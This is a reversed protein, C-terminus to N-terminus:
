RGGPVGAAGPAAAAAPAASGGSLLSRGDLKATAPVDYLALLTPMIDAMYPKQSLDLKRNAFLIGDVLPPYVSCHDASWVDLNPEVISKAVIGLSDQWGVRYGSANSPFLDPILAPDYTGYAEDRTFVYAVPHEGNQPDVYQPLKARIEATLAEYEAGPNVIGQGERGKLNIYINGLGMAYARTKSWDVDQFFQGQDFLDELNAQHGSQGKLVLYGETALWTNYNMTRRWPAFGHDSAVLLTTGAPMTAVKDMVKGVIRDMQQYAKLISDGYKAHGEETYLPHQPDTHHWMVHQVRDTFEFYHVYVDWDDEMLGALIKEEESVTFDTDEHFVKDDITGGKISWTDIMWGITKFLGFRSALEGAFARPATVDFIPPLDSPDFQIPSLYIRVEPEISLVRFRGIGTVKILRNFPFVFKVWPSWEGPKLALKADSVAIEVRSKDAAVDITMPIKIYESQKPFLKNPPGKIETTLTGKNDELEVIEISVENGGRPQFFLESTFYFPKGIRGSLDPTGLGSLMEGHPFPEPPFTVPMRMVRVHKGADGLVKWFPDGQRRNIVSPVKEPLLTEGVWFGGAVAAAKLRVRFLKLLLLVVFFLAAAAIAALAPGNSAGFLFPKSSEDFAAFSPRYTRTDRKLFDFISTRGPNLGTSFTSWSVPTQSPITSRLPSFTGQDRLRALNPLKGEDMWKETLKADAGDFGLVVTRSGGSDAAFLGAAGLTSLLIVSAAVQLARRSRHRIV